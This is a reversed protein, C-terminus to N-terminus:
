LTGDRASVLGRVYDSPLRQNEPPQWPVAKVGDFRFLGFETGLWLYGDPTQATALVTGRLFGDRTKWATHGYQSVDLAPNLGFAGPCSALLLGAVVCRAKAMLCM